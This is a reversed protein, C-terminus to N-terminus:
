IPASVKQLASSFLNNPDGNEFADRHMCINCLWFFPSFIRGVMVPGGNEFERQLVCGM